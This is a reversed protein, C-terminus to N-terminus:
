AGGEEIPPTYNKYDDTGMTEFCNRVMEEFQSAVGADFVGLATLANLNAQEIPQIPPCYCGDEKDIAVKEFEM